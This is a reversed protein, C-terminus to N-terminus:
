GFLRRFFGKNGIAKEIMAIYREISAAGLEYDKIMKDEGISVCFPVSQIDYKKALKPNQTVDVKCICARHGFYTELIDLLPFVEHCPGCTPSYFDIFLAVDTQEITAVYNTDTLELAM